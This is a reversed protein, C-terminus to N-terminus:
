HKAHKKIKPPMRSAYDLSGMLLKKFGAEDRYISEPIVFYDKMPRGKMPELNRIPVSQALFSQVQNPSLRLFVENEFLGAFMYTNVFYAPFGFMVRKECPMNDTAKSLLNKLHEPAKEWKMTTREIEHPSTRRM